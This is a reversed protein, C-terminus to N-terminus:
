SQRQLISNLEFSYTQATLFFPVRPKYRVQGALVCITYRSGLSNVLLPFLARYCIQVRFLFVILSNKGPMARFCSKKRLRPARACVKIALDSTGTVADGAKNTSQEFDRICFAYLVIVM